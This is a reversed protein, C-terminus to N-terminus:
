KVGQKRRIAAQAAALRAIPVRFPSCSVYDLGLQQCFEITAPDGGHEGCIGLKVDPRTARAKGAALEMLAGVGDRDLTAFPDNEFIHNKVYDPLFNGSDDRSLGLGTQTLDNTGFSFFAAQAALRDALVAARPVEIMSGTVYAPAFSHAAEYQEAIRRTMRNLIELEAVDIVLPFMIEVQPTEGAENAIDQLAGFIARLQMEYIEPATIALRCGRHGLMPNTEHLATIRARLAAADVGLLSELASLDDDTQPLFEHLPPDLLRITVPLGAMERFLAAFDARQEPELEALAAARAQATEALIMARVHLVRRPDFFMHETRCLGIGEAGFRRARAADEPTEANTRVRMLRQGDAWAMLAAFDGSLEAELTPVAGEMVRGTTGDITIVDGEAIKHAGIQAQGADLDIQLAGAGSVCPRGLGRAVVAAHSTMGGRATLIAQAAYMGHIDEPSTETRLLVVKEGQAALAEASDAAFCVAGSAAGPSAPLGKTLVNYSATPDLTPHLLQELAPPDIRSVAEAEEILGEGVMDVAIKLAAQVTRKGNRTQLIFLRGQQITFEVDQMDRFHNELRDFVRVLEDFSEPMAEELSVDEMGAAERAARTLYHPTRIGAVVDEGQANLLFEGYIERAGNSPNRTFSVGTASNMGLNGFVMAQVNVATGWEDPINHLRRYTIARQNNWSDFVARIAGWLQAQPEQPFSQGAEAEIVDRYRGCVEQWDDADLEADQTVANELKYDDLAEEFFDHAVGMVVDGYMQM